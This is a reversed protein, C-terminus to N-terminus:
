SVAVVVVVVVAVVTVAAAAAAIRRYWGPRVRVCFMCAARGHVCACESSITSLARGRVRVPTLERNASAGHRGCDGDSVLACRDGVRIAM